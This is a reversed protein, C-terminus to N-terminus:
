KAARTLKIEAGNPIQRFCYQSRVKGGSQDEGRRFNWDHRSKQIM